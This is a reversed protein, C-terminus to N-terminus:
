VRKKATIGNNKPKRLYQRYSTIYPNYGGSYEYPNYVFSKRTFNKSNNKQTISYENMPRKSIDITWEAHIPQKALFGYINLYWTHILVCTNRGFKQLIKTFFDGWTNSSQLLPQLTENLEKNRFDYSKDFLEPNDRAEIFINYPQESEKYKMKAQFRMQYYTKGYLLLHYIMSSISTKKEDPLRCSFKSSDILSVIPYVDPYLQRLITFGLDTMIVTYQGSIKKDSVECGGLETGLWDLVATNKSTNYSIQVCDHKSGISIYDRNSIKIQFSGINTKAVFNNPIESM